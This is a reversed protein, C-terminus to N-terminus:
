FAHCEGKGIPVEVRCLKEQHAKVSLHPHNFSWVDEFIFFKPTKVGSNNDEESGTEEERTKRVKQNPPQYSTRQKDIAAFQSTHRNQVYKEAFEEGSLKGTYPKFWFDELV